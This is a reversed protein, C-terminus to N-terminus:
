LDQDQEQQCSQHHGDDGAAGDASDNPLAELDMEEFEEDDDIGELGEEEEDEGSNSSTEGAVDGEDFSDQSGEVEEPPPIIDDDVCECSTANMPSNDPSAFDVVVEHPYAPVHGDEVPIVEHLEIGHVSDKNNLIHRASTGATPVSTFRDDVSLCDSQSV